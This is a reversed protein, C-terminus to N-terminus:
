DKFNRLDDITKIRRDVIARKIAAERRKREARELEWGGQRARHEPDAKRRAMEAQAEHNLDPLDWNPGFYQCVKCFDFGGSEEQRQCGHCGGHFTHIAM